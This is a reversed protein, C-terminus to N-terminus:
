SYITYTLSYNNYLLSYSEYIVFAFTGTTQAQFAFTTQRIRGLEKAITGNPDQVHAAIDFPNAVIEGQVWQGAKLQIPISVVRGSLQGSSTQQDGAREKTFYAAVTRDSNM